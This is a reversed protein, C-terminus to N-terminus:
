HGTFSDLIQALNLKSCRIPAAMCKQLNLKLGTAPGFNELITFLTRVESQIPNLFIVADDAYLSLRLKANREQLPSLTDDM